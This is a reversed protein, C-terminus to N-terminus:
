VLHLQVIGNRYLQSPRLDYDAAFFGMLVHASKAADGALVVRFHDIVQKIPMGVLNAPRLLLALLQRDIIEDRQEPCSLAVIQAIRFHRHLALAASASEADIAFFICHRDKPSSSVRDAVCCSDIHHISMFSSLSLAASVTLM